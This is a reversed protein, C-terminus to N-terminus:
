LYALLRGCVIVGAWLFLSFIAAFKAAKPTSSQWEWNPSATSSEAISFQPTLGPL